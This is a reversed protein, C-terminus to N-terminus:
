LTFSFEYGMSFGISTVATRAPERSFRQTNFVGSEELASLDLNMYQQKFTGGVIFIGWKTKRKWLLELELVNSSMDFVVGELTGKYSFSKQVGLYIEWKRIKNESLTYKLAPGFYYSSWLLSNGSEDQSIGIETSLSLGFDVPFHWKPFIRYEFREATGTLGETNFLDNYYGLNLTDLKYYFANEYKQSKNTTLLQTPPQFEEHTPLNPNLQLDVTVDVLNRTLTTFKVKGKSDFINSFQGGYTQEVALIFVNRKVRYVLSKDEIKYLISNKKLYAKFPVPQWKEPRKYRVYSPAPKFVAKTSKEFETLQDITELDDDFITGEEEIQTTSLPANEIEQFDQAEVKHGPLFLALGFLCITFLSRGRLNM